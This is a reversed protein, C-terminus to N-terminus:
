LLAKWQEFAELNQGIMFTIFSIQFEGLIDLYNGKFHKELLFQLVESKNLHFM